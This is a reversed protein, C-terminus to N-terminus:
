IWRTGLSCISQRVTNRLKIVFSRCSIRTLRRVTLPCTLIFALTLVEKLRRNLLKQGEVTEYSTTTKMQSESSQAISFHHSSALYLLVVCVIWVELTNGSREQTPREAEKVQHKSELIEGTPNVALHVIKTTEVNFEGKGVRKEYIALEMEVQELHKTLNSNQRKTEVLEAELRGIRDQHEKLVSPPVMQTIEVTTVMQEAQAKAYREDSIKLKQQMQYLKEELVATSQSSEILTVLQAIRIRLPM